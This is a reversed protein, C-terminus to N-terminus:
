EMTKLRSRELLVRLKGEPILQLHRLAEDTTSAELLTQRPSGGGEVPVFIAVVTGWSERGVVVEWERGDEGFFRRM